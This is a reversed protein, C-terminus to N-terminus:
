TPANNSTQLGYIRNNSGSAISISHNGKVIAGGHQGQGGGDGTQQGTGEADANGGTGGKGRESAGSPNNNDM